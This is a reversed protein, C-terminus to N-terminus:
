NDKMESLSYLKFLTHYYAKKTRYIEQRLQYSKQSNLLYEIVSTEGLDYSKKILPLLKQKYNRHNSKLTKLMRVNTKLESKLQTLLSKSERMHQEHKYSIASNRHMAAVRQEESKNSSFNLPLSFGVSYKDIDLEKSYQVSLDVSDLKNAYRDLTEQTSRIRKKYADKSLKFTNRLKVSSRIPYMDKCSFKSSKSYRISSLMFLKQKSIDKQMKMEQLQAYLRNKEIELQMLETKSIEQYKYAKQKKKYLKVFELYSRRFSGHNMRDLCHNHYISKLGNRFNLINKEEELLYAQNSLHTIRREQEQVDGLMLTKSVGIAYEYGNRGLHPYAKTGEGFLELPSSSTDAKNKALLALNEQELAKILVSNQKASKLVKNLTYTSAHMCQLMLVSLILYKM